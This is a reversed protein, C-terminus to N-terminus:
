SRLDAHFELDEVADQEDFTMMARAYIEDYIPEAIERQERAAGSAVYAKGLRNSLELLRFLRSQDSVHVPQYPGTEAKTALADFSLGRGPEASEMPATHFYVFDLLKPLDGSYKRVWQEFRGAKGVSLGVDRM